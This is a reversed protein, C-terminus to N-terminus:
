QLHFEGDVNRVVGFHVENAIQNAGTLRKHHAEKEANQRTKDEARRAEREQRELVEALSSTMQQITKAPFPQTQARLAFSVPASAGAAPDKTRLEVTIFWWCNVRYQPSIPDVQVKQSTIGDLSWM